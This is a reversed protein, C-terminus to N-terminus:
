SPEISTEPQSIIDVTKYLFGKSDKIISQVGSIELDQVYYGNSQLFSQDAPTAVDLIKILVPEEESKKGETVYPVCVVSIGEQTTLNNEGDLELVVSSNSITENSLINSPSETVSINDSILNECPESQKLTNVASPDDINEEDQSMLESNEGMMEQSLELSEYRVTQLKYVGEEDLCYKNLEIHMREPLLAQTFFPCESFKATQCFGIRAALNQLSAFM